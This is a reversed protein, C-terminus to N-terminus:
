KVLTSAVEAIIIQSGLVPSEGSGGGKHSNKFDDSNRWVAFAEQSDWYMVVQMEDYEENQTSVLVEVKHFGEYNTLAKNSTFAPAMREAFGKKLNIRNTVTIM